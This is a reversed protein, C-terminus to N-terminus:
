GRRIEADYSLYEGNRIETQLIIYLSHFVSLLQKM